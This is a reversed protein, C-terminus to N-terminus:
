KYVFESTYNIYFRDFQTNGKYEVTYDIPSCYYKIAVVGDMPEGSGKDYVKMNIIPEILEYLTQLTLLATGDCGVRNVRFRLLDRDTCTKIYGSVDIGYLAKAVAEIKLREGRQLAVWVDMQSNM